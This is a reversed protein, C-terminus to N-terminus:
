KIECSGFTFAYIDFSDSESYLKLIHNGFQENKIIRYMRSESIELYTRGDEDSRMDAGWDPRQVDAGDQKVYVRYPKYKRPKIVANVSIAHYKIAIYDNLGRDPKVHAMSEPGNLWLGNAYIYGDIYQGSDKYNVVENPKNGEANGMRARRYGLYLEPTMPYCLSGSEVKDASMYPAPFVAETGTKKLLRQLTLETEHYGGEGSHDYVIRGDQDIIYKNPWYRNGYLNWVKYDNDLVVPYEIGYQAIAKKVNDPDRAFEFEPTHVGIIVLGYKSYRKHWENLYPFTRICNVCTYDWFDILVIKGSLAKITLPESNIWILDPPFAPAEKAEEGWSRATLSFMAFLIVTPILMMKRIM